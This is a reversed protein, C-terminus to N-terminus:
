LYEKTHDAYTSENVKGCEACKKMHSNEDGDWQWIHEHAALASGLMLVAVIAILCGTWWKKM